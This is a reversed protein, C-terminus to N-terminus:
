NNASEPPNYHASVLRINEMSFTVSYREPGKEDFDQPEIIITEEQSIKISEGKISIRSEPPDEGEELSTLTIWTGSYAVDLTNSGIKKWEPVVTDDTYECRLLQGASYDVAYIVTADGERLSTLTFWSRDSGNAVDLTKSGIKKWEPVVTSNTCECRFLRGSSYEVAYLATANGEQLSTLTRWNGGGNAGYLTNGIKEWERSVTGGTYKCRCLQGSTYEVAYLATVNGERLSTLTYWTGSYVKDLTKSGIKQWESTVTSNTCECRFLQGSDYDVAYLATVSSRVGSPMVKVHLEKRRPVIFEGVGGVNRYEIIENEGQVSAFNDTFNIVDSAYLFSSEVTLLIRHSQPIILTGEAKKSNSENEYYGTLTNYTIKSDSSNDLECRLLNM